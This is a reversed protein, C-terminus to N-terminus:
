KKKKGFVNQFIATGYAKMKDFNNVVANTATRNLINGVFSRGASAAAGGALIRSTLLGVGVTGATKLIGGIVSAPGTDGLASRLMNGPKFGDLTKQFTAALDEEQVARKEELAKIATALEASNKIM